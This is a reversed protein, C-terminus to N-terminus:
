AGIKVGKLKNFSMRILATQVKSLFGQREFSVELQQRSIIIATENYIFDFLSAKSVKLKMLSEEFEERTMNNDTM